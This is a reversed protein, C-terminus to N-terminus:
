DLYGLADLRELIEADVPSTVPAEERSREVEPEWSPITEVPRNRVVEERFLELAPRGDMDRAVPLGLAYLVTPAVDVVSGEGIREGERFGPGAAVLIGQPRHWGSSSTRALDGMRRNEAFGHDSLVILRVPGEELGLVRGLVGDLSRYASEVSQGYAAIQDEPVDGLVYSDPEMYKWFRHSIVDVSAFYALDLDPRRGTPPNEALWRYAAEYTADAAWSWRMGDLSKEVEEDAGGPLPARTFRSELERDVVSDPAVKLDEIVPQLEPPYVQDPV